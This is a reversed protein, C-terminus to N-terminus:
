CPYTPRPPEALEAPGLGNGSVDRLPSFRGIRSVIRQSVPLVPLTAASVSSCCQHGGSSAKGHQHVAHDASVDGHHHHGLVSHESADAVQVAATPFLPDMKLVVAGHLIIGLTAILM